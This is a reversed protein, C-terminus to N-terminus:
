SNPGEPLQLWEGEVRKKIIGIDIDYIVRDENREIWTYYNNRGYASTVVNVDINKIKNNLDATEIRGIGDIAISIIVDRKKSDILKTVVVISNSITSSEIIKLPNIIAEPLQKTLKIGLNHYNGNQKGYKNVIRDLKSASVTIPRDDLGIDLYLQPTQKFLVLQSKNNWKGSAWLDLQKSFSLNTNASYQIDETVSTTTIEIDDNKIKSGYQFSKERIIWDSFCYDCMVYEM